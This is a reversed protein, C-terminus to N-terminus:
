RPAFRVIRDDDQTPTGRGDRNSTAVWLSGDPAAVVTRLRGFQGQLAAEPMGLGSASIPIKWLRRGALAAVYLSSGSVAAGSPSAEGTSWTVLPNTFAPNNGTGEVTPWGYNKGPEILNVEDFASGGFETAFLRGRADWALGQVNRHGMSWVRSGPSPNGDAPSGDAKVRLIKGNLNEADQSRSGAAADGTSIYLMGDPGFAIRGGNHVNSSGIGSLIVQPPAGLRFRSVRNDSATTYYAYVLGDQAYTPAVTLGLLGGEGYDVVDPVIMVEQPASGPRLQVIRGSRREAVLASGDPLFAIGWPVTLGTAIVEPKAFDYTREAPATTTPASASSTSEANRTTTSNTAAQGGSAAGGDDSCAAALLATVVSFLVVGARRSVRTGNVKTIM